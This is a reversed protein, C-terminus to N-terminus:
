ARVFGAVFGLAFCMLVVGAFVVDQVPLACLLGVCSGSDQLQLAHFDSAAAGAHGVQVAVYGVPCGGVGPAMLDVQPVCLIM